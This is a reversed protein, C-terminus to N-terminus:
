ASWSRAECVADAQYYPMAMVPAATAHQMASWGEDLTRMLSEVEALAADDRKVNAATLRKRMYRYLRALNQSLAGGVDHNLSAELEGLAALAKAISQSRSAIDGTALAARAAKVQTLTLEYLIHILEVPDAALIRHRLYADTPM